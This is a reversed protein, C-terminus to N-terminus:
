GGWVVGIKVNQVAMWIKIINMYMNYGMAVVASAYCRATFLRLRTSSHFPFQQPPDQITLFYSCQVQVHRKWGEPASPFQDTSPQLPYPLSVMETETRCWSEAALEDNNSHIGNCNRCCPQCVLHGDNIVVPSVHLTASFRNSKTSANSV